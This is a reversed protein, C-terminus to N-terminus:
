KKWVEYFSEYTEPFAYQGGELKSVFVRKFGNEIFIKDVYIKHNKDKFDNEIIITHINELLDPEDKLIYYLAGECDVVLTNFELNYKQKLQDFTITDVEAWDDPIKEDDDIPKSDWGSQILRRKSLASNEINFNLGNLLRNMNLQKAYEKITEFVVLNSSNELISGIVCSNRGINGGLELVVDVPKIYSMAMTQEMYEDSLKGYEFYLLKHLIQLKENANLNLSYVFRWDVNNNINFKGNKDKLLILQKTDNLTIRNNYDDQIHVLKKTGFIPDGFLEARKIDHKPILVIDKFHSTIDTIKNRFGYLIKM